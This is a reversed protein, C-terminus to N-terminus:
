KGRKLENDIVEKMITGKFLRYIVLSVFLREITNNCSNSSEINSKNM